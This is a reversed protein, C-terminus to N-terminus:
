IFYILINYENIDPLPNYSFLLVELSPLKNVVNLFAWKDIDNHCVDFVRLHQFVTGLLPPDLEKIHNGVLYLEM